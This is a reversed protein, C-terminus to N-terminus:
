VVIVVYHGGEVISYEHGRAESSVTGRMGYTRPEHLFEGGSQMPTLILLRSQKGVLIKVRTECEISSRAVVASRLKNDSVNM